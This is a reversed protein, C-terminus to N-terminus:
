GYRMVKLWFLKSLLRTHTHAHSLLISRDGKVLGSGGDVWVEDGEIAKVVCTQAHSLLCEGM